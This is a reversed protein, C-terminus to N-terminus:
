VWLVQCIKMLLYPVKFTDGKFKKKIPLTGKLMSNPWRSSIGTFKLALRIHKKINIIQKIRIPYKYYACYKFAIKSERFVENHSSMVLYKVLSTPTNQVRHLVRSFFIIATSNLSAACYTTLGFATLNIYLTCFHRGADLSCYNFTSFSDTQMAFTM